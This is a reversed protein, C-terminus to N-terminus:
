REFRSPGQAAARLRSHKRGYFAYILLGLVLWVAFRLWTDGPLDFMLYLCLLIGIIPFVPVFPVRFGRELDARTRRLVIVGINVLV